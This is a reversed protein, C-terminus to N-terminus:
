EPAQQRSLERVERWWCIDYGRSKTSDFVWYGFKNRYLTTRFRHGEHDIVDVICDHDPKKDVYVNHYGERRYKLGIYKRERRSGPRNSSVKLKIKM